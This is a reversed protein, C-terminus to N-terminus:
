RNKGIFVTKEEVHLFRSGEAYMDSNGDAAIDSQEEGAALWAWTLASKVEMGSILFSWYVSGFRRKGYSTSPKFKITEAKSGVM